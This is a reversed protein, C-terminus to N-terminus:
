HCIFFCCSLFCLLAFFFFGVVVFVVVVFFWCVCVCWFVWVFCFGCVCMDAGGCVCVAGYGHRLVDQQAPQHHQGARDLLHEHGPSRETHVVHRRQGRVSAAAPETLLLFM